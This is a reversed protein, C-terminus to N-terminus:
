LSKEVEAILKAMNKRHEEMMSAYEENIRVFEDWMFVNGEGIIRLLDQAPYGLRIAVLLKEKQTEIADRFSSM